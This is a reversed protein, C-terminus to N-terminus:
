VIPNDLDDDGIQYNGIYEHDHWITVGSRAITNIDNLADQPIGGHGLVGIIKIYNWYQRGSINPIKVRRTSYGFMSLFHDMNRAEEYDVSYHKFDFGMLGLAQDISATNTGSYTDSANQAYEESAMYNSVGSLMTDAAGSLAGAGGGGGMIGKLASVAGGRLISNLQASSSQALWAKYSDIPLAIQPFNNLSIKNSPDKENGYGKYKLPYLNIEPIPTAGGVLEFPCVSDDFFEYRFQKVKEGTSVELWCYPYTLMKNNKPIYGNLSSPKIFNWDVGSQSVTYAYRTIDTDAGRIDLLNGPYCFINVITGYDGGLSDLYSMLNSMDPIYPSGPAPSSVLAFSRLNCACPMSENLLYGSSNGSGNDTVAVVCARWDENDFRKHVVPFTMSSNILFTQCGNPEPLLNNGKTDDNTHEREVFCPFVTLDQFWTM